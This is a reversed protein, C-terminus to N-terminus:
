PNDRSLLVYCTQKLGLDNLIVLYFMSSLDEASVDSSLDWGQNGSVKCYLVLTVRLLM